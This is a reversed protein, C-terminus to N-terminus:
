NGWCKKFIRIWNLGLVGKVDNDSYGRSVLGLAINQLDTITRLGKAYKYLGKKNPNGYLNPWRSLGEGQTIPGLIDTGEVLDLGIGVHEVGVIEDIYDVHDLLDEITPWLNEGTNTWKVFTPFSVMGLVGDKEAIARIEEDTRNRPNKCITYSNSHTSVVSDARECVELTTKKSVHSCDVIMNLKNMEEILMRGTESLGYDQIEGSGSAFLNRDNYCPQVIKLGLEFFPELYNLHLNGESANLLTGADESGLFVAIRGEKKAKIIDSVQIVPGMFTEPNEKILSRKEALSEFSGADLNVATEGSSTMQKIYEDTLVSDLHCDIVISERYLELAHEKEDRSLELIEKGM